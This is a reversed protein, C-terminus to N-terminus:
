VNKALCWGVGEVKTIEAGRDYEEGTAKCKGAFRASVTKGPNMRMMGLPNGVQKFHRRPIPGLLEREYGGLDGDSAMDAVIDHWRAQAVERYKGKGRRYKAESWARVPKNIGHPDGGMPNSRMGSMREAQAISEDSWMAPMKLVQNITAEKVKGRRTTFSHKEPNTFYGYM